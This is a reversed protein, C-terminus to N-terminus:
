GFKEEWLVRFFSALKVLDHDTLEPNKVKVRDLIKHRIEEDDVEFSNALELQITKFHEELQDRYEELRDPPLEVADPSRLNLRDRGNPRRRNPRRASAITSRDVCDPLIERLVRRQIKKRITKVLAWYFQILHARKLPSRQRTLNECQNRSDRALITEYPPMKPQNSLFDRLELDDCVTITGDPENSDGDVGFCFQSNYQFQRVGRHTPEL